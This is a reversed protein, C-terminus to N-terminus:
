IEGEITVSGLRSVDLIVRFSHIKCAFPLVGEVPSLGMAGVCTRPLALLSAVFSYGVYFVRYEFSPVFFFRNRSMDEM